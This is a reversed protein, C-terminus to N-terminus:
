NIISFPFILNYHLVFHSAIRKKRKRGDLVINLVNVLPTLVQVHGVM